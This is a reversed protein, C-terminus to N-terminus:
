RRFAAYMKKRKWWLMSGSISLVGPMLGGIVYLIKIVDGGYNGVHLSWFAATLNKPFPANTIDKAEIVKGSQPDFIVHSADGYMLRSSNAMNGDIEIPDNQTFPIAIFDPIFGPLIERSKALCSDLSASLRIKQPREDLKWADPTLTAKMMWFGTFFVIINFLLAWVGIYLHISRYLHTGSERRLTVRFMLVNLINKRYVLLGTIMSLFITVSALTVILM